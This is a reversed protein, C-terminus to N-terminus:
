KDKDFFDNEKLIIFGFLAFLVSTILWIVSYGISQAISGYIAIVLTGLWSIIWAIVTLLKYINM